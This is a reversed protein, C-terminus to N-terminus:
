LARLPDDSTPECGRGTKASRNEAYERVVHVGCVVFTKLGAGCRGHSVWSLLDLCATANPSLVEDVKRNWQYGTSDIKM